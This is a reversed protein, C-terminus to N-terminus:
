GRSNAAPIRGGTGSEAVAKRNSVLFAALDNSIRHWGGDRRLQLVAYWRFRSDCRYQVSIM